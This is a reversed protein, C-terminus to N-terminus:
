VSVLVCFLYSPEPINIFFDRWSIQEQDAALLVGKSVAIRVWEKGETCSVYTSLTRAVHKELLSFSHDPLRRPIAWPFFSVVGHKWELINEFAYVGTRVLYFRVKSKEAFEKVARTGKMLVTRGRKWPRGQITQYYRIMELVVGWGACGKRCVCVCVGTPM